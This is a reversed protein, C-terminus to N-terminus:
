FPFLWLLVAEGGCRTALDFARDFSRNSILMSSAGKKILFRICSEAMQGAGIVM